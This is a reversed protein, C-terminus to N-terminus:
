PREIGKRRERHIYEMSQDLAEAWEKPTRTSEVGEFAARMQM